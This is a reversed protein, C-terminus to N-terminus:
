YVLRQQKGTPVVDGYTIYFPHFEIKAVQVQVQVQVQHVQVRVAISSTSGRKQRVQRVQEAQEDAAAATHVETRRDCAGYDDRWSVTEDGGGPTVVDVGVLKGVM